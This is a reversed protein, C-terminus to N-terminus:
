FNIPCRYFSFRPLNTEARLDGGLCDVDACNLDVLYLSVVQILVWWEYIRGFSLDIVVVVVLGLLGVSLRSFYYFWFITKELLHTPNPVLRTLSQHNCSYTHRQQTIYITRQQLSPPTD